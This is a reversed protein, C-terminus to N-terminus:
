CQLLWAQSTLHPHCAENKRKDWSNNSRDLFQWYIPATPVNPKHQERLKSTNCSSLITQKESSCIALLKHSEKLIILILRMKPFPVSQKQIQCSVDRQLQSQMLCEMSTLPGYQYLSAWKTQPAASNQWCRSACVRELM